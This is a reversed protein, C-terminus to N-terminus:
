IKEKYYLKLALRVMVIFMTVALLTFFVTKNFYNSVLMALVIFMLSIILGTSGIKTEILKEREDNEEIYLEKLKEENKLAKSYKLMYFIVVSEIGVGFGLNFATANSDIKIIISVALLLFIILCYIRAFLMRHSVKSRFNEM